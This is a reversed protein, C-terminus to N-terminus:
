KRPSASALKATLAHPLHHLLSRHAYSPFCAGMHKTVTAGRMHDFIAGIQTGDLRNEAMGVNRGRLNVRMHREVPQFINIALMMRPRLCLLFPNCIQSELNRIKSLPQVAFIPSPATQM